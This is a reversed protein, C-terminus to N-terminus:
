YINKAIVMKEQLKEKTHNFTILYEEINGQVNYVLKRMKNIEDKYTLIEDNLYLAYEKVGNLMTKYLKQENKIFYYSNSSFQRLIHPSLKTKTDELIEKILNPIVPNFSKQLISERKLVYVMPTDFVDNLYLDIPKTNHDIKSIKHRVPLVPLVPLILQIEKETIQTDNEILKILQAMTMTEDIEYSLFVYNYLSFIILIKKSLIEDLM